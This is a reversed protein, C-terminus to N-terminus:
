GWLNKVRVPQEDYSVTGKKYLNTVNTWELFPLIFLYKLSINLVMLDVEFIPLKCIM